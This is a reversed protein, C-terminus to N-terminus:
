RQPSLSIIKAASWDVRNTVLVLARGTLSEQAFSVVIRVQGLGPIRVGLTFCWSTQARINVPRYTHAPILPVLAEVALHPGPLRLAWGHADRLHLTATELLRNKNLLSIWGKRRRALVQVLNEALSWADFVVVGFPGKRRIAEKVLDMALTMNPRFPEHRARFDPEQLWM